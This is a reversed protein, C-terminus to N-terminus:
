FSDTVLVSAEFLLGQPPSNLIYDHVAPETPKLTPSCSPKSITRLATYDETDDLPVMDLSKTDQGRAGEASEGRETRTPDSCKDEIVSPGRSTVELDPVNNSTEPRIVDNETEIEEEVVELRAYSALPWPGLISQDYTPQYAYSQPPLLRNRSAYEQVAHWLPGQAEAKLARLMQTSTQDPCQGRHLSLAM